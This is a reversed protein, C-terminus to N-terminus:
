GRGCRALDSGAARLAVVSVIPDRYNTPADSISLNRHFM